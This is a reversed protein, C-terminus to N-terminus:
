IQPPCIQHMWLAAIQLATGIVIFTLGLYGLTGYEHDLRKENEDTGELALSVVGDSFTRFPMGFFFLILVGGFSLLIGLTSIGQQLM